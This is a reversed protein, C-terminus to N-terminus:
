KAPAAPTPEAPPVNPIFWGTVSKNIDFYLNAVRKVDAATVKKTAEEFTYYLTWDGAAIDENLKGAIAFSGDRAYATSAVIKGIATVVEADTVGDKKLRDIEDIVIKEVKEHEVGPALYAYVQFLSPDHFYGADASVSTTLSKDTLARYYRSTKGSGLIASLVNLAPLDAHTAAPSKYSVGVVGLEGARRVLVRRPGTQEPEETYM